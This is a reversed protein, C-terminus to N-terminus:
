VKSVVPEAMVIIKANGVVNEYSATIIAEGEILGTVLGTSSVTAVNESSSSWTLAIGDMKENHQDYTTADLVMEENKFLSSENPALEIRSVKRDEVEDEEPICGKFVLILLVIGIFVKLRRDLISPKSIKSNIM